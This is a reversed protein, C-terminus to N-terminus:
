MYPFSGRTMLFTLKFRDALLKQLMTKIQKDKPVGEVDPKGEIDYLDTGFWDPGGVIQKAHLGYARAILDNVNTNRTM